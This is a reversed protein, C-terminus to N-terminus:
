GDLRRVEPMGEAAEKGANGTAEESDSDSGEDIPKCRGLRFFRHCVRAGFRQLWPCSPANACNM